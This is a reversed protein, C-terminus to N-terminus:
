PLTGGGLFSFGFNQGFSVVGPQQVMYVCWWFSTSGLTLIFFLSLFSRSLWVLELSGRERVRFVLSMSIKVLADLCTECVICVMLRM